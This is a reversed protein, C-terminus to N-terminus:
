FYFTRGHVQIPIIEDVKNDDVTMSELEERNKWAGYYIANGNDQLISNGLIYESVIFDGTADDLDYRYHSDDKDFFERHYTVPQSIHAGDKYFSVCAFMSKGNEPRYDIGYVLYAQRDTEFRIIENSIDSQFSPLIQVEYTDEILSTDRLAEEMSDYWVIGEPLKAEVGEKEQQTATDGTKESVSISISFSKHIDSIDTQTNFMVFVFVVLLVFLIGIIILIKGFIMKKKRKYNM